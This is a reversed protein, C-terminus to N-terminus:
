VPEPNFENHAETGKRMETQNGIAAALMEVVYEVDATTMKPHLPLTLERSAFADTIPLLGSACREQYLSLRHVPPYHITTQIGANRLQDIVADRDVNRPLVAPMIHHACAREGSFPVLVDPCSHALRERYHRSLGRRTANWAPLRGLQVLGIAARLEDMRYNFGLLVVDYHPTRSNLRAFTSSTMGHGRMLRVRELLVPDRVAVVGGEATTMNKNGYFSFAVADGVSGPGEVGVAHASDEVLLLGRREALERWAARDVLAGAYHVLIAARTRPTCLEEARAACIVPVELSEIDVFVPTAGVYLVSNATATFTLSPVLVEDGAGIGAAMLILHLAATCSNVAVCDPLGHAAAFAEEFARVRPGMTIWGSDIVESLATKEEAGLVPESVLLM